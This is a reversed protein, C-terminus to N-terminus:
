GEKGIAALAAEIHGALAGADGALLLTKTRATAGAALSISTKPLRLWRAVTAILAANAKGKDPIARVKAKLLPGDPGAEVGTVEDRGANPTLRVYLLLGDAGGQHCAARM